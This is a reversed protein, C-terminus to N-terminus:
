GPVNSGIVFPWTSMRRRDSFIKSRTITASASFTRLAGSNEISSRRLSMVSASRAAVGPQLDVRKVAQEDVVAPPAARRDDIRPRRASASKSYSNWNACM